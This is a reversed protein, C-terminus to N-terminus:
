KADHTHPQQQQEDRTISGIGGIGLGLHDVTLGDVHTGAGRAM